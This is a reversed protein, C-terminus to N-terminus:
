GSIGACCSGEHLIYAPPLGGISYITHLIQSRYSPTYASFCYHPSYGMAFGLVYSELVISYDYGCLPDRTEQWFAEHFFLDFYILSHIGLDWEDVALTTQM